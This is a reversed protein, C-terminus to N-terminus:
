DNNSNSGAELGSLRAEIDRLRWNLENLTGNNDYTIETKILELQIQLYEKEVDEEDISEIKKEIYEIRQTIIAISVKHAIVTTAMGIIVASIIAAFLNAKIWDLARYKLPTKKIAEQGHIEEDRKNLGVEDSGVLMTNQSPVTSDLSYSSSSVSEKYQKLESQTKKLPGNRKNRSM